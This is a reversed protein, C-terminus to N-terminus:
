VCIRAPGRRTGQRLIRVGDRNFFMNLLEALAIV